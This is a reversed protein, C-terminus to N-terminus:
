IEEDVDDCHYHKDNPNEGAKDGKSKDPDAMMKSIIRAREREDRQKMAESRERDYFRKGDIFTKEVKSYVSLPHDSWIVLDADKGAEISGVRDDIHMLKAPNITIMKLAETEPVGGYKVAKAAEHNLRRAMEADDSNMAVLVGQEHMLAANYPIADKVEFKYGWWDSFTSAGAGHERMKDALKYGELIHTFTNVRFNMSDAVHMLMNVESQVYSHCTIFRQDALIEALADLELDRRYRISKAPDAKKAFLKRRAKSSQEEEVKRLLDYEKARYFHDYYVQDVGMRSQPYRIKERDGWNSQKVNEGLAFKIFAPAGEFAFEHAPAGWRLKIISSQGGIPNASGTLQQITTVGGALQRYFNLDDPNIADSIRVEASSAKTGENVGRSIGIHSHEDIIGPTIHKGRLNVVVVEEHHKPLLESPNLNKGVAVIKGNHMLVEGREIIGIDSSTWVTAGSFLVSEAKPLSDLGYARNPFRVIGSDPVLVSDRRVRQVTAKQKQRIATWPSWSGDPLRANGEWIRSDKHINGSFRIVETYHGDEPNFSLTILQDKVKVEVPKRTTDTGAITILEAKPDERTKGKVEVSFFHNNLNLNYLGRIDTATRDTHRHPKGLVWTELIEAEPSFLDDSVIIFSAFKGEAISGLRDDAGVLRAPVITLADIAASTDLGYKVAKRLNKLFDEPKELGDTTLCFEIGANHLRSPNSPASEWHKLEQLSVLRSDYPDSVDYAKPFNLPVILPYGSRVVEDIRQYEDGITKVIFHKDFESGITHVRPLDNKETIAFIQPLANNEQWAELGFNREKEIGSGAYWQVDYETQRLLAVAGMLSSPYKQQSSGKKFSYFTAAKSRLLLENASGAGPAVLAGTGRALGDPRHILIAGFGSKLLQEAGKEDPVFDEVAAYHPHLADNWIAAVNRSREYQPNNLKEKKAAEPLAYSSYLDVFAPYIHQGKLDIIEIGPQTELDTGFAVIRGNAIKLSAGELITNGDIHLHANIFQRTINREDHPGNVPFTPQSQAATALFLLFGAITLRM